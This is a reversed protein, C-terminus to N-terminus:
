NTVMLRDPSILAIEDMTLQSVSLWCFCPAIFDPPRSAWTPFWIKSARATM